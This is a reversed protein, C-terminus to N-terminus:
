RSTNNVVFRYITCFFIVENSGGSGIVFNIEFNFPQDTVEVSEFNVSTEFTEYLVKTGNIM